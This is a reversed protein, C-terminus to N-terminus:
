TSKVLKQPSFKTPLNTLRTNRDFDSAVGTKSIFFILNAILLSFLGRQRQPSGPRPM